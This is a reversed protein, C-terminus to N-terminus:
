RGLSPSWQDPCGVLLLPLGSRGSCGGKIGSGGRIPLSVGRVDIWVEGEGGDVCDGEEQVDKSEEDKLEKQEELENEFKESM